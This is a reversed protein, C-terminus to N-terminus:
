ELCGGKKEIQSNNVQYGMEEMVLDTMEKVKNESLTWGKKSLSDLKNTISLFQDHDKINIQVSKNMKQDKIM